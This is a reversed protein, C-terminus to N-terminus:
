YRFMKDLFEEEYDDWDESEVTNWVIYWSGDFYLSNAGYSDPGFYKNNLTTDGEITDIIDQLNEKNAYRGNEAIPFKIYNCVVGEIWAEREPNCYEIWKWNAFLFSCLDEKWMEVKKHLEREKKTMILLVM